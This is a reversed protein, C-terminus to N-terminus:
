YDSKDINTLSGAQGFTLVLKKQTMKKHQPQQRFIYYWVDDEFVSTLMPSGLLYAVQEKTMGTQLQNVQEAILYNGQNIDPRYIWRETLSCGSLLMTMALLLLSFTKIKMKCEDKTLQICTIM